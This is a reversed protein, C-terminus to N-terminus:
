RMAKSCRNANEPRNNRGPGENRNGHPLVGTQGPNGVRDHNQYTRKLAEKNTHLYKLNTGQFVEIKKIFRSCDEIELNIILKKDYKKGSYEQM